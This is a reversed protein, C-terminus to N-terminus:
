IVNHSVPNRDCPFILDNGPPRKGCILRIPSLESNDEATTAELAVQTSQKAELTQLNDLKELCSHHRKQKKAKKKNLPSKKIKKKKWIEWQDRAWKDVCPCGCQFLAVTEPKDISSKVSDKSDDDIIEIATEKSNADNRGPEDDDEFAFYWKSSECDMASSCMWWPSEMERCSFDDGGGANNGESVSFYPFMGRYPDKWAEYRAKLMADKLGTDESLLNIKKGGKFLSKINVGNNNNTHRRSKM